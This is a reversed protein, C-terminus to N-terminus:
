LTNERAFSHLCSLFSLMTFEVSFVPFVTDSTPSEGQRTQGDTQRDLTFKVKVMVKSGYLSLAKMNCM